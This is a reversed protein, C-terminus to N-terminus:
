LEDQPFMVAQALNVPLCDLQQWSIEIIFLVTWNMTACSAFSDGFDKLIWGKLFMFTQVINWIEKVINWPLEDLPQGSMEDFGCIDFTLKRILPFSLPDGFDKSNIRRFGYIDTAFKMIMWERPQQQHSIITQVLPSSQAVSLPVSAAMELSMGSGYSCIALRQFYLAKVPCRDWVRVTFVNGESYQLKGRLDAASNHSCHMSYHIVM